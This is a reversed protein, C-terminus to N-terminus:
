KKKKKEKSGVREKGDEEKRGGREARFSTYIVCLVFSLKGRRGRLGERRSGKKKKKDLIFPTNPFFIGRTKKRGKIERKLRKRQRRKVGKLKIRPVPPPSAMGRKKKKGRLEKRRIGRERQGPLRPPVRFPRRLTPREKEGGKKKGRKHKQSLPYLPALSPFFV